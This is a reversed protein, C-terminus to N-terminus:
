EDDEDDTDDDDAPDFDDDADAESHAALRKHAAHDADDFESERTQKQGGFALSSLDIDRDQLEEYDGETFMDQDVDGPLERSVIDPVPNVPREPALVTRAAGVAVISGTVLVGTGPTEDAKEIATELASQFHPVISVRHEGLVDSAIQALAHPSLARPSETATVIVEDVVDALEEVIGTADKDSMVALVALVKEFSYSEGLATALSRAGAPNHAADVLVTPGRRVVELRGPSTVTLFADRVVDIALMRGPSVFSEVAALAAAANAAQHEGYLPLLIEDYQGGPTTFTVLQDGVAPVRSLVGFEVGERVLAAGVEISRATLVAAAEPKQRSVVAIADPKIVGAKEAAILQLTDGLWEMHDMDIPTVVSVPADVINTADWTGGMGVEMVAVDVPADAFVSYALVTLVEFFTMRPRGAAVEANDVIRVFPMLDTLAAVLRDEDLAVGDVLIREGVHRLHPSTFLGVRLGLGRLLTDVMRATSTKGNTGAVILVPASNQPDGLIELLLRVRSLTPEIQNEPQRGFLEAM